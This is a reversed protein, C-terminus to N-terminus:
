IQRLRDRGTQLSAPDRGSHGARARGQVHLRAAAKRKGHGHAPRADGAADKFTRREVPGQPARQGQHGRSRPIDDEKEFGGSGVDFRPDGRAEHRNYYAMSLIGKTHGEAHQLLGKFEADTLVRDRVDSGKILTKKISKFARYADAGIKGNIFAANVMTKVKGMDQDVTGPKAGQNQLKAQFNKLDAATITNVPWAGFEANFKDLKLKVIEYSALVKVSELNLYWESLGSFTLKAGRM